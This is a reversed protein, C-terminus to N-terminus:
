STPSPAFPRMTNSNRTALVNEVFKRINSKHLPFAIQKVFHISVENLTIKQKSVEYPPSLTMKKFAQM